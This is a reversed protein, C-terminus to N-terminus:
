PATGHFFGEDRLDEQLVALEHARESVPEQVIRVGGFVNRLLDPRAEELARRDSVAPQARPQARYYAVQRRVGAPGCAPTRTALAVRRPGLGHVGLELQFLGLKQAGHDLGHELQLLRM